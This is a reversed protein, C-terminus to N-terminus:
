AALTSVPMTESGASRSLACNQLEAKIRRNREAATMSPIVIRRHLPVGRRKLVNIALGGDASEVQLRLAAPSAMAALEPPRFLFALTNSNETALQLRRLVTHDRTASWLLVAGCAHSRLAQEAAWLAEEATHTCVIILQKLDIGATALAPAYPTYPPAIWALRRDQRSLHGLAPGLLLLEGIGEHAPLIESLCGAPWGGGTLEKDLM